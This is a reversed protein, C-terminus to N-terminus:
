DSDLLTILCKYKCVPLENYACYFYLILTFLKFKSTNMYKGFIRTVISNYPKCTDIVMLSCLFISPSWCRWYKWQFQGGLVYILKLQYNIFYVYFFFFKCVTRLGFSNQGKFVRNELLCKRTSYHFYICERLTEYYDIPFDQTIRRDTFSRILLLYYKYKIFM